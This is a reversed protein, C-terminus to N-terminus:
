PRAILPFGLFKSFSLLHEVLGLLQTCDRLDPLFCGFFHQLQCSPESDLLQRLVALMLLMFSYPEACLHTGGGAGDCERSQLAPTLSALM